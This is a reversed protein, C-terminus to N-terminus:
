FYHCINVTQGNNLSMKIYFIIFIIKLPENDYPYFKILKLVETNLRGNKLFGWSVPGLASSVFAIHM